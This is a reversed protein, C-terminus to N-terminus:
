QNSLTVMTIPPIAAQPDAAVEGARRILVVVCRKVWNEEQRTLQLGQSQADVKRAAMQRLEAREKQSRM